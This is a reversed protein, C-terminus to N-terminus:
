PLDNSKFLRKIGHSRKVSACMRPTRGEVLSQGRARAVVSATTPVERAVTENGGFVTFRMGLDVRM